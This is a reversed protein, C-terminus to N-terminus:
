DEEDRILVLGGRWRVVGKTRRRQRTGLGACILASNGHIEHVEENV